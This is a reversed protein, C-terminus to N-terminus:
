FSFSSTTQEKLTGSINGGDDKLDIQLPGSLESAVPQGVDARFDMTGKMDVKMHGMKNNDGEMTMTVDCVVIKKGGEERFSKVVIKSTIKPPAAFDSGDGSAAEEGLVKALEDLSDGIKVKKPLAGAVDKHKGFRRYNKKLKTLEADPVPSGDALTVLLEGGKREVLYAKDIAPSPDSKAEGNAVEQQEYKSYTVKLKMCQKDGVALCEETKHITELETIALDVTGDPGKIKAKMEGNTVKTGKEVDGVAAYRPTIAVEDASSGSPKSSDDDKDERSANSKKDGCGIAATMLLALLTSRACIKM